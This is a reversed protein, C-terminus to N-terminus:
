VVVCGSFSDSTAITGIFNGLQYTATIQQVGNYNTPLCSFLLGESTTTIAACNACNRRNADCALLGGSSLPCAAKPDSTSLLAQFTSGCYRPGSLLEFHVTASDCPESPPHVIPTVPVPVVPTPNCGSVTTANAITGLLLGLQYTATVVQVGNSNTPTCTILVGAVTNSTEVCHVCNNLNGDCTLAGGSTLPCAADPSISSLLAQFSSGCTTSSSLMTFRVNASNCPAAETEGTCTSAVVVLAVFLALTTKNM